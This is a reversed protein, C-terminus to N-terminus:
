DASSEAARAGLEVQMVYHPGVHEIEFEDGVVSFGHALYFPVAPTRANCWVLRGGHALVHETCREMIRSAVGRRRAREDTAVGRLRWEDTGAPDAGPRQERYVSTIGVQEDGLYASVHLTLPDDDGPFALAEPPEGPRLIRARMDRTEAAEVARVSVPQAADLEAM